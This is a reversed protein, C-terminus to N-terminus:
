PVRKADLVLAQDCAREDAALSELVKICADESEVDIEDRQIYQMEFRLENSNDRTFVFDAHTLNCSGGQISPMFLWDDFSAEMRKDRLVPAIGTFWGAGECFTKDSCRRLDVLHADVGEATVIEVFPPENPQVALTDCAEASEQITTVRYVGEWSELLAGAESQCGSLVLFLVYPRM